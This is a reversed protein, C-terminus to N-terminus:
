TLSFYLHWYLDFGSLEQLALLEREQKDLVLELRDPDGPGEPSTSRFGERKGRLWASAVGHRLAMGGWLLQGVMVSWGRRSLWSRPRYKRALLVQNRAILRVTEPQWVGLTASGWHWAVAGGIYAGTKGELSCRIGFDVDELYSGFREDLLGVQEFLDRRFLAATMPAIWIYRERTFEPTDTRSSGARWACLSRSVLDFTGDLVERHSASYIKGTAFSADRYRSLGDALKDLWDPRLEVDNNVVAVLPTKARRIGENVAAAFGCNAAWRVVEAGADEAADPSDDGSGNDVVIVRKPVETQAGLDTLTRVLRPGGNWNPIVVTVDSRGAKSM